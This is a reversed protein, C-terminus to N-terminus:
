NLIISVLFLTKVVDQSLPKLVFDAAGEQLCKVMFTPSDQFSCVIRIKAM